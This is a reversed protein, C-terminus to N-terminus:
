QVSGLISIAYMKAFDEATLKGGQEILRDQEDDPMKEQEKWVYTRYDPNHVQLQDYGPKQDPWARNDGRALALMKGRVWDTLNRKFEAEPIAPTAMQKDRKLKRFMSHFDTPTPVDVTGVMLEIAAKTALEAEDEPIKEVQDIWISGITSPPNGKGDPFLNAGRRSTIVDSIIGVITVADEHRM